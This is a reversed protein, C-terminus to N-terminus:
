RPEAHDLAFKLENECEVWRFGPLDALFRADNSHIRSPRAPTTKPWFIGGQLTAHYFWEVDIHIKFHDAIKTITKKHWDTLPHNERDFEDNYTITPTM